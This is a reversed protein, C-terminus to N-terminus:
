QAKSESVTENSYYLRFLNSAMKFYYIKFGLYVIFVLPSFIYTLYDPFPDRSALAIKSFINVLCWSYGTAYNAIILHIKSKPKLIPTPNPYKEFGGFIGLLIIPAFGYIHNLSSSNVFGVVTFIVMFLLMDMLVLQNFPYDMSERLKPGWIDGITSEWNPDPIFHSEFRIHVWYKIGYGIVIAVFVTLLYEYFLFDISIAPPDLYVEDPIRSDYYCIFTTGNTYKQTVEYTSLDDFEEIKFVVNENNKFYYGSLVCHDIYSDEDSGCIVYYTTCKSTDWFRNDELSASTRKMEFIAGTLSLVAIAIMSLHMVIGYITPKYAM